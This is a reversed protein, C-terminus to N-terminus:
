LVSRHLAAHDAIRDRSRMALWSLVTAQEASGVKSSPVFLLIQTPIVITLLAATEANLPFWLINLILQKTNSLRSVKM